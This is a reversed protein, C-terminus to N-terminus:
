EAGPRRVVVALRDATRSYPEGRVSGYIGVKEFGAEELLGVLERASYMRMWVKFETREDDKLVIWRQRLMSWDDNPEREQLQITGDETEDWGRANFIHFLTERGMTEILFRGGPRLSRFVNAAVKRDEDPDEFYGFSSFMNICADFGDPRAFERMDAEVLELDVGAQGARDRATALYSRTRDVGTVRLGRGALEVAFRGPGCCLDLVADGPALGLLEVLPGVKAAARRLRDESVLSRGFRDWFRDDDHWPREDAM